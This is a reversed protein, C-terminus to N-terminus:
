KRHFRRSTLIFEYTLIGVIIQVIVFLLSFILFSLFNEPIKELISSIAIFSGPVLSLTFYLSEFYYSLGLVLASLSLYGVIPRFINTHHESFLNSFFLIVKSSRDINLKRLEKLYQTYSFHAGSIDGIETQYDQLTKYFKANNNPFELNELIKNGKLLIRNVEVNNKTENLLGIDISSIHSNIVILQDLKSGPKLEIDLGGNLKSIDIFADTKGGINISVNKFRNLDRGDDEAGTGEMRLVNSFLRKYLYLRLQTSDNIFMLNLNDIFNDGFSIIEGPHLYFSLLNISEFRNKRFILKRISKLTDEGLGPREFEWGKFYLNSIVLEKKEKNLEFHERYKKLESDNPIKEFDLGLTNGGSTLNLLKVWQGSTIEEQKEESWFKRREKM